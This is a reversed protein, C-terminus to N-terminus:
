TRSDGSIQMDNSPALRVALHDFIWIPVGRSPFALEILGYLGMDKPLIASVSGGSKRLAVEKTM